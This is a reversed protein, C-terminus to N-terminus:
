LSAKLNSLFFLVGITTLASPKAEPLPQRDSYPAHTTPGGGFDPEFGTEQVAWTHCEYKAKYSNEDDGNQALTASASSLGAILVLARLSTSNTKDKTSTLRAHNRERETGLAWQDVFPELKSFPAPLQM